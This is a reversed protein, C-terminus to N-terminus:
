AYEATEWCDFVIISVNLCVFLRFVFRIDPEMSEATVHWPRVYASSRRKIAIILQHMALGIQDEHFRRSANVMMSSPVDVFPCQLRCPLEFCMASLHFGLM